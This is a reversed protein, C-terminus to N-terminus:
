FFYRLFLNRNRFISFIGNYYITEKGNYKEQLIQHWSKKKSSLGDSFAEKKRWLVKEPLLDMSEFAKRFWWKEIGKEKPHRFESPIEWYKEIFLPDLLPVRAELGHKAICRDVRKIDYCHINQVYEKATEHLEVSSPCKWNFLYSSCIEDPGEGVLIVKFDTKESIYKCALYQGVSARITTTDWSEICEIVKPIVDIAEEHTIYIETHISNIKEAVMRAYEFDTGEDKFGICFTHIQKNLIRTALACVISSDVGGSLLFAIPRDSHLRIKISDIVSNRINELFNKESLDKSIVDYIWKFNYGIGNNWILGPPFEIIKEPYNKIGKIESCIANFDISSYLPRVGIMDRGIIKQYIKEDRIEYLVFAFEGRIERKFLKYFNELNTYFKLFLELLVVCDSEKTKDLNYRERLEKYNYIEGNCILIFTSNNKSIIFPQHSDSTTDIISLRHFGIQLNQNNELLIKKYVSIDPGRHFINFFDNQYSNGIITWIGCM